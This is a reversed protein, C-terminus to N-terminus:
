MGIDILALLQPDHCPQEEFFRGVCVLVQASGIIKGSERESGSKNTKVLVRKRQETTLWNTAM